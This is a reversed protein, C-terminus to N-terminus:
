LFWLKEVEPKLLEKFSLIIEIFKAEKIEKSSARMHMRADQVLELGEGM